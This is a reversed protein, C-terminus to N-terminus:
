MRPKRRQRVTKLAPPQAEKERNERERTQEAIEVEGKRGRHRGPKAPKKTADVIASAPPPTPQAAPAAPDPLDPLPPSNLSLGVDLPTLPPPLIAHTQTIIPVPPPASKQLYACGSLAPLLLTAAMSTLCFFRRTM